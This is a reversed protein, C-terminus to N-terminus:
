APLYVTFAAGEGPTGEAQIAGDHQEVVKKVVALGIGTGSFQDRSHLRQFVLFIQNAYQADFGIGNDAVCIAWYSRNSLLDPQLALPIAQAAVHRATIQVIPVTAPRHFKLANSLLNQFLQRIQLRDGTIDPLTPNDATGIDIRANTQQIPHWLDEVIDDILRTLSFSRFTDRQSSIRSYELLDRILVSMREAASQMRGLMDRGDAGLTPAYRENLMDGFAQIKRLPEQLDHSAIYAFSQLSENSRKLELNAAELQHRYRRNESVDVNAIVVGDGAKTTIRLWWQDGINFEALDPEGTEVVQAYKPFDLTQQESTAVEFFTKALIPEALKGWMTIAQPNALITKFDVIQGDNDRVAAHLSIAAQANNLVTQLLDAQRQIQQEARKSATVNMFTLVVTDTEQSVASVEFWADLGSADAYHQTTHEHGGTEVVRVYMAFLGSELNNPFTELLRKGIIESPMRGISQEVARNATQILFDSIQSDEDRIATMSMISNLSAEFAALALRAKEPLPQSRDSMPQPTPQDAAQPLNM